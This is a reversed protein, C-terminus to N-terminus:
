QNHRAMRFVEMKRDFLFRLWLKVWSYHAHLTDYMEPALRKLRPLRNWPIQPLDHHENHYGINFAVTNLNGYYSYTEQGKRFVYHEQIWRAGLPHPGIAFIASAMFYVFTWPSVLWALLGVFAFQIVFNPVRWNVWSAPKGGHKLFMPRLSQLLPFLCQWGLRRLFGGRLLWAEYRPAVDADHETNGLYRHHKLHWICFPVTCPLAMPFNAVIALVRNWFPKRFILNHCCEHVLVWLAHNAYAGVFYAVLLFAWWPAGFLSLSIAIATQVAVISVIAVGSWYNIGFLKRVEPHQRIIKKARLPHPQPAPTILYANGDTPVPFTGDEPPPYVFDVARQRAKALADPSASVEDPGGFQEDLHDTTALDADVATPKLEGAEASSSQQALKTDTAFQASPDKHAANSSPSISVPRQSPRSM